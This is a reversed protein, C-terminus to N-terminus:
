CPHMKQLLLVMPFPLGGARWGAPATAESRNAHLGHWPFLGLNHSRNMEESIPALYLGVIDIKKTNGNVLLLLLQHTNRYM